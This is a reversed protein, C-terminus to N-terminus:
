RDRSSFRFCDNDGHVVEFALNPTHQQRARWAAALTARHQPSSLENNSLNVTRLKTDEAVLREFRQLREQDLGQVVNNGALDLVNLEPARHQLTELLSITADADLASSRFVLTQLHPMPVLSFMAIITKNSRSLDLLKLSPSCTAVLSRGLPHQALNGRADLAVVSSHRDAPVAGISLLRPDVDALRATGVVLAGLGTPGIFANNEGLRACRADLVKPPKSSLVACLRSWSALTNHAIGLRRLPLKRDAFGDCVANVVTDSRPYRFCASVDLDKLRASSKLLNHLGAGSGRRDLPNGSLDLRELNPMEPVHDLLAADLGCRALRLSVMSSSRSSFLSVCRAGLRCDTVSLSSLGDELQLLNEADDDDLIRSITTRVFIPENGEEWKEDDDGASYWPQDSRVVPPMKGFLARSSCPQTRRMRTTRGTAFEHGVAVEEGEAIPIQSSRRRTTPAAAVRRGSSSRRQRRRTARSRRAAPPADEVQIIATPVMAYEFHSRVADGPVVPERPPALDLPGKLIKTPLSECCEEEVSSEDDSVDDDQRFEVLQVAVEDAAKHEGLDRLSREVGALADRKLARREDNEHPPIAKLARRYMDAAEKRKSIDAYYCDAAFCLATARLDAALEDGTTRTEDLASAAALFERVATKADGSEFRALGCNYRARAWAHQWAVDADRKDRYKECLSRCAEFDELALAALRGKEDRDHRCSQAAELWLLGRDVRCRELEEPCKAAKASRCALDLETLAEKGRDLRFLARALCRRRVIVTEVTMEEELAERLRRRAAEELSLWDGEAEMAAILEDEKEEEERTPNRGKKMGDDFTPRAGEEAELADAAGALREPALGADRKVVAVSEEVIEVLRRKKKKKLRREEGVSDNKRTLSGGFYDPARLEESPFERKFTANLAIAMDRECHRLAEQVCERRTGLSDFRVDFSSARGLLRLAENADDEAEGTYVKNENYYDCRVLRSAQYKYHRRSSSEDRIEGTVHRALADSAKTYARFWETALSGVRRKELNKTAERLSRVSAEAAELTAEMRDLTYSLREVLCGRKM